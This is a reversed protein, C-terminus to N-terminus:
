YVSHTRETPRTVGRLKAQEYLADAYTRGEDRSEPVATAIVRPALNKMEVTTSDKVTQVVVTDTTALIGGWLQKNNVAPPAISPDYQSDGEVEVLGRESSSDEKVISEEDGKSGRSMKRMFGRKSSKPMAAKEDAEIQSAKTLIPGFETHVQSRFKTRESCGPFFATRVRFFDLPVFTLREPQNVMGQHIDLLKTLGFVMAPGSVSSQGYQSVVPKSNFILDNFWEESIQHALSSMSNILLLIFGRVEPQVHQERSRKQKLDNVMKGATWGDYQKLFNIQAANLHQPTLQMDPLQSQNAKSVLVDFHKSLRGLAAFCTIYTGQKVVAPTNIEASYEQLSKIHSAVFQIPIQMTRAMMAEVRAPPAFRYGAAVFRDADDKTLVKTFFLVQGKELVSSSAISNVDSRSMKKAEAPTPMVGTGTVRDFLSGLQELKIHMRDALDASAVCFGERFLLTQDNYSEEDFSSGTSASTQPRSNQRSYPDLRKLHSRMRPILDSVSDWDNSVKWLWHFVPHATNFEDDFRQLNFRKAIKQAPLVGENTVLVNGDEDFYACALNVQQAKDALQKHRMSTLFIIALCIFAALACLAGAVIVATNRNLNSPAITKLQYTCGVSATYHMGCVAVALILACALRKWFVNIWKEKFYFFLNLAIICDGIAIICSAIIFRPPYILTYNYTGLNGCYHMGVISLGAFVGTLVDLFRRLIVNKVRLEAIYFAVTLGIVPLVCSLVTWGPSYTMQLMDSGDGLIVSRNGIFHMCWIAILGMSIACLLLQLRSMWNKGLRKRHLLEVTLVSGILSAFFSGVVIGPEFHWPIIEGVVYPSTADM